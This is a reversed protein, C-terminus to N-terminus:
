EAARDAVAWIAERIRAWDQEVPLTGIYYWQRVDNSVRKFTWGLRKLSHMVQMVSNWTCRPHIETRVNTPGIPKGPNKWFWAEIIEKRPTLKGQYPIYAGSCIDSM